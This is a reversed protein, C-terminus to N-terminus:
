GNAGSRSDVLIRRKLARLLNRLVGIMKRLLVLWLEWMSSFGGAHQLFRPFGMTRSLWNRDQTLRVYRFWYAPLQACSVLYPTKSVYYEFRGFTYEPFRKIRDLIEAPLPADFRDQLISLATHLRLLVLHQRGHEVLRDWDIEGRAKRLVVMADAIWRIPPVQNWQMGHVCIHFFQDTPNLAHVTLGGLKTEIARKWFVESAGTSISEPLVQWHLDFLGDEGRRFDHSHVTALHAETPTLDYYSQWGDAQLMRVARLSHEPRILLDFDSMPRLGPDEYYGLLVLAAGKLILTEIGEAQLSRVVAAMRHLLLQNQYWTKRHFGRFRPIAPHDIDHTRLNRYLLSFLRYSGHDLNDIDVQLIWAEWAEIARDDPLLSARLLLEQEPTPLYGTGPPGM